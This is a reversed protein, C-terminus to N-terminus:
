PRRVRRRWHKRLAAGPGPNNIFEVGAAELAERVCSIYPATETLVKRMCYQGLGAERADQPSIPHDRSSCEAQRSIAGSQWPSLIGPTARKELAAAITTHAGPTLIPSRSRGRGASTQSGCCSACLPSKSIDGCPSGGP